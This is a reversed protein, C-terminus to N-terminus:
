KDDDTTRDGSTDENQAKATETNEAENGGGLLAKRPPNQPSVPNEGDAGVPVAVENGRADEVKITKEGNDAADADADPAFDGTGEKVVGGGAEAGTQPPTGEATRDPGGQGILARDQEAKLRDGETSTGDLTAKDRRAM